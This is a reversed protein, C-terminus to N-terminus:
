QCVSFKMVVNNGELGRAVTLTSTATVSHEPTTVWPLRCAPDGADYNLLPPLGGYRTVCAAVAANMAGAAAVTHGLAPKICTAAAITEEGLAQKLAHVETADGVVTGSGHTLMNVSKPARTQDGVVGRCAHYLGRGEPHPSVVHYADCGRGLGTMEAYVTAGRRRAETLSELVLFAAGEGLVAGSRNASYPQYARQGLDRRDSLVSLSALHTMPWWALSDEVGGAIAIDTHGQEIAKYATGVANAGADATGVFFGSVGNIGLSESIYFLSAAPLGQVFLLPYASKQALDFFLREDVVGHEDRCGMMCEVVHRLDSVQKNGGIYLGARSLDKGMLRADELALSAGAFALQDGRTMIRLTKRNRVFHAPAFDEIEGAWPLPLSDADFLSIPKIGTEGAMLGKWTSEVGVGLATLLGVGTVVVRTM